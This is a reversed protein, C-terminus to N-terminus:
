DLLGFSQFSLLPSAEWGDLLEIEQAGYMFGSLVMGLQTGPFSWAEMLWYSLAAANNEDILSCGPYLEQDNALGPNTLGQLVPPIIGFITAIIAAALGTCLCGSIGAHVLQDTQKKNKHGMAYNVRVLVIDEVFQFIESFPVLFAEAAILSNRSGVNMVSQISDRMMIPVMVQAMIYVSLGFMFLKILLRHQGQLWSPVRDKKDQQLAAREEATKSLVKIYLVPTFLMIFGIFMYKSGTTKLSTQAQCCDYVATESNCNADPFVCLGEKNLEGNISQGATNYYIFPFTTNSCVNMNSM